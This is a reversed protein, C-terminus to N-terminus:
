SSMRGITSKPLGAASRALSVPAAESRVSWRLAARKSASPMSLRKPGSAALLLFLSGGESLRSTTSRLVSCGGSLGLSIAAM